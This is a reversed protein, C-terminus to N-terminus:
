WELDHPHDRHGRIPGNRRCAWAPGQSTGGKSKPRLFCHMSSAPRQRFGRPQTFVRLEPRSGPKVLTRCCKQAAQSGCFWKSPKPTIRLSTVSDCRSEERESRPQQARGLGRNPIKSNTRSWRLEKGM